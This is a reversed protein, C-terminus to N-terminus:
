SVPLTKSRQNGCYAVTRDNSGVPYVESLPLRLNLPNESLKKSDRIGPPVKEPIFQVAAAVVPGALPGRGAEDVGIVAIGQHWFDNEYNNLITPNSL